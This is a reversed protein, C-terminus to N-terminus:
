SLKIRNCLAGEQIKKRGGTKEKGQMMKRKKSNSLEKKEDSDGRRNHKGKKPLYVSEGV